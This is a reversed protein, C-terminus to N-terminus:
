AFIKTCHGPLIANTQEYVCILYDLIPQPINLVDVGNIKVSGSNPKLDGLLLKVITSKGEGSIGVFGVSDGNEILFSIDNYQFNMNDEMQINKENNYSFCINEAQFQQYKSNCTCFKKLQSFCENNIKELKTASYSAEVLIMKYTSHYMLPMFILGSYSLLIIFNGFTIKGAAIDFCIFCVFAIFAIASIIEYLGARLNNITVYKNKISLSKNEAETFDSVYFNTNGFKAITKANEIYTIFKPRIKYNFDKMKNIFNEQANNFFHDSLCYLILAPIFAFLFSYSFKLSIAIATIAIIVSYIFFIGSPEACEAIQAPERSLFESYSSVGNAKINKRNLMTLKSLVAVTINKIIKNKLEFFIFYLLFYLLGNLLICFVTIGFFMWKDFCTNLFSDIFKSEFLPIVIQLSSIIGAILIYLIFVIKNTNLILNKILNKNNM